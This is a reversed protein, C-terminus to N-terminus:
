HQAHPYAKGNRPFGDAALAADVEDFTLGRGDWVIETDESITFKVDPFARGLAREVLKAVEVDIVPM